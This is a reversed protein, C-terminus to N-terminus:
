GTDIFGIQIQNTPEDEDEGMAIRFYSNTKPEPKDTTEEPKDADFSVKL